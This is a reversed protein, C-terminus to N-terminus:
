LNLKEEKQEVRFELLAFLFTIFSSSTLATFVLVGGGVRHKKNVEELDLSGDGNTDIVDFLETITLQKKKKM